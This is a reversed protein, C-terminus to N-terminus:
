RFIAKTLIELLWNEGCETLAKSLWGGGAMIELCPRGDIFATLEKVWNRDIITWLGRDTCIKRYRHYDIFDDKAYYQSKDNFRKPPYPPIEDKKIYSIYDDISLTKRSMILKMM